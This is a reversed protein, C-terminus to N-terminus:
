RFYKLSVSHLFLTDEYKAGAVRGSALHCLAQKTVDGAVPERNLTRAGHRRV